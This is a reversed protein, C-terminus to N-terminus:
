QNCLNQGLDKSRQTYETWFHNYIFSIKIFIPM